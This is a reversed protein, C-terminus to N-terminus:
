AARNKLKSKDASPRLSLQMIEALIQDLQDLQDGAPQTADLVIMRDGRVECWSAQEGDLCEARVDIGALQVAAIRRQLREVVNERRSGKNERRSGKNERRSGKNERRSDKNERRSDTSAAIRIRASTIERKM